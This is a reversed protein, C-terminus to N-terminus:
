DETMTTSCTSPGTEPEPAMSILCCGATVVTMLTMYAGIIWHPLGLLTTHEGAELAGLSFMCMSWAIMGFFCAGVVGSLRRILTRMGSSYNQMFIEVVVHGRRLAVIPVSQFIGIAMLTKIIEYGGPIPASFLYRGLVDTVTVFAILLWCVAAIFGGGKEIIARNTELSPIAM